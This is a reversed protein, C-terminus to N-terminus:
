RRDLWAPFSGSETRKWTGSWLRMSKSRCHLSSTKTANSKFSSFFFFTACFSLFSSTTKMKREAIEGQGKTAGGQVITTRHFTTSFTPLDDTKLFAWSVKNQKWILRCLNTSQWRVAQRRELSWCDSEFHPSTFRLSACSTMPSEVSTTCAVPWYFPLAACDRLGGVRTFLIKRWANFSDNHLWRCRTHRTASNSVTRSVCSTFARIQFFISSLLITLITPRASKCLKM